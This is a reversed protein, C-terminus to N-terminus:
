TLHSGFFGVTAAMSRELAEAVGGMPHTAGFTHGVGTVIKLETSAKGSAAHLRESEASPVSEDEEGHLLLWPAKVERAAVELDLRDARQRDVEELVDLYLPLVQHTRQNVVDLRGRVRWDAKTEASWRDVNAISAWTVLAGVREDRAGQLVAIGGGRSHGFLGLATPAATGLEGEWLATLVTRLDALEASYTNRGFRDPFAFEGAADVGSGSASYAVATFGARALREALAPFFAWSRFGKYGHLLVVAPRPSSRGAARVSLHIEGLTGPLTLDTLKPTAMPPLILRRRASLRPARRYHYPISTTQRNTFLEM